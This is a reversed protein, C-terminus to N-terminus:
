GSTRFGVRVSTVDGGSVCVVVPQSGSTEWISIKTM